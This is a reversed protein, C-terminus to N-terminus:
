TCIIFVVGYSPARTESGTGNVIVQGNISVSHKHSGSANVSISHSHNGDTSTSGNGDGLGHRHDDLNYTSSSVESAGGGVNRHTYTSGNSHYDINTPINQSDSSYTNQHSHNGRSASGTMSVSPSANDTSCNVSYSVTGSVTASDLTEVAPTASSKVFQGESILPTTGGILAILDTYEAPIPSGDCKLWGSPPTANHWMKIIGTTM